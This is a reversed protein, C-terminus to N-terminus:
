LLETDAHSYPPACCCLIVLDQQGTNEIRHATGPAICVTDGSKVTFVEDGLTMTGKGSLMFYLEETEQHRHLRTQCGPKVTAEALSQKHCSHHLPHMLERIESGDKTTYAPIDKRSTRM